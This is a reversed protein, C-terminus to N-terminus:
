RTNENQTEQAALNYMLILERVHNPGVKRNPNISGVLGRFARHGALGPFAAETAHFEAKAKATQGLQACAEGRRM